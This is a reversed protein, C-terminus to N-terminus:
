EGGGTSIQRLLVLACDRQENTGSPKTAPSRTAGACPSDGVSDIGREHVTLMAGTAWDASAPWKFHNWHPNSDWRPCQVDIDMRCPGNAETQHAPRLHVSHGRWSSRSRSPARQLSPRFPESM